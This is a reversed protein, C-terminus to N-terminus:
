ADIAEQDEHEGDDDPQQVPAIEARFQEGRKAQEEHYELAREARESHNELARQGFVPNKRDVEAERQYREGAHDQERNAEKLDLAFAVARIMLRREVYLTEAKGHPSQGGVGIENDIGAGQDIMGARDEGAAILDGGAARGVHGTEGREGTDLHEM